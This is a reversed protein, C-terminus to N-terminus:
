CTGAGASGPSNTESVTEPGPKEQAVGREKEMCIECTLVLKTTVGDLEYDLVKEHIRVRARLPGAVTSVPGAPRLERSERSRDRRDKFLLARSADGLVLALLRQQRTAIKRRGLTCSTLIM